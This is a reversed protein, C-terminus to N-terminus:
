VRWDLLQERLAQSAEAAREPHWQLDLFVQAPHVRSPMSETARYFVGEDNPVLLWVNEGRDVERLGLDEPNSPHQEVFFSNLRFGAFSTYLWGASLGTVAWRMSEGAFTDVLAELAEPGSRSPVHYRRVSHDSIRYRQTWSDLLLSPSRSRLEGVDNRDLLELSDLRQIAKSVTGSPLDVERALDVQKWWRDVDCLLARSVRSYTPTFPNSPRGPNTYRNANGSVLLRLDGAQVDANGSLDVWSIGREAAWARARPGMHPVAVVGLETGPRRQLSEAARDLTAIHDGGKVEFALVRGAVRVVVDARDDPAGALVEVPARFWEELLPPLRTAAEREWDMSGLYCM